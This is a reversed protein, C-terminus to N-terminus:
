EYLTGTFLVTVKLGGLENEERGTEKGWRGKELRVTTETEHSLLRRSGDVVVVVVGLGGGEEALDLSIKSKCLGTAFINCFQQQQM